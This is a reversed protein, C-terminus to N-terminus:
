FCTCSAPSAKATLKDMRGWFYCYDVGLPVWSGTHWTSLPGRKIDAQSTLVVTIELHLFQLSPTKPKSLLFGTSGCPMLTRYHSSSQFSGSQIWVRIRGSVLLTSKPLTWPNRLRFFSLWGVLQLSSWIPFITYHHKPDNSSWTESYEGIGDEM